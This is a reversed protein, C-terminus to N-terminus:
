FEEAMRVAISSPKGFSIDKNRSINTNIPSFIIENAKSTKPFDLCSFIEGGLNTLHQSAKQSVNGSPFSGYSRVNIEKSKLTVLFCYFCRFSLGWVSFFQWNMYSFVSACLLTSYAAMCPWSSLVNRGHKTALFDSSNIRVINAVIFDQINGAATRGYRSLLYDM